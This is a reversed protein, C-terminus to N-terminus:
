HGSPRLSELLVCYGLAGVVCGLSMLLVSTSPFGDDHAIRVFIIWLGVGGAALGLLTPLVVRQCLRLIAFACRAIVRVLLGVTATTWASAVSQSPNRGHQTETGAM